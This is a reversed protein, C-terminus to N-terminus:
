EGILHYVLNSGEEKEVKDGCFKAVDVAFTSVFKGGEYNQDVCSNKLFIEKLHPVHDLLRYSLRKIRNDELKVSELVMSNEFIDEHLTELQNKRASFTKLYLNSSLIKADM